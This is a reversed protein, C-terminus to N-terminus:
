DQAVQFHLGQSRIAIEIMEDLDGHIEVMVLERGDLAIVFMQRLSETEDQKVYVLALERSSHSKVLYQWGNEKMSDNLTNIIKRNPSMDSNNDSCRYVGVQVRSLQGVMSGIDIEEDPEAFNVFMSALLISASGFGFEFERSLESDFANTVQNRIKKFDRNVGICGSLMTGAILIIAINQFIRTKM